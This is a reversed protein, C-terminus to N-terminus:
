RVTNSFSHIMSSTRRNVVIGHYSDVFFEAKEYNERGLKYRSFKRFTDSYTKTILDIFYNFGKLQMTFLEQLEKM